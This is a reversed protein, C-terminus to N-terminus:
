LDGTIRKPEVKLLKTTDETVSPVPEFSKEELLKGSIKDEPMEINKSLHLLKRNNELTKMYLVYALSLVAFLTFAIIVIGGIINTESLIMKVVVSYIMAGFAFVAVIELGVFGLRVLKELDKHQRVLEANEASPIQELLALSVKELSLGCSRCFNQETTNNAGCNPCFM